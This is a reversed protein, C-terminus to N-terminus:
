VDAAEKARRKRAVKEPNRANPQTGPETYQGREMARNVRATYKRDTGYVHQWPKSYLRSM